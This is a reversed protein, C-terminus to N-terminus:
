YGMFDSKKEREINQRIGDIRRELYARHELYPPGDCLPLLSEFFRRRGEEGPVASGWSTRIGPELPLQGFDTFTQNHQLFLGILQAQVDPRTDAIMTFLSRMFDLDASWKQILEALVAEQRVRIGSMQPKGDPNRYYVELYSKIRYRDDAEKGAIYETVRAMLDHHDEREWLFGYDNRDDFRTPHGHREFQRDIHRIIFDRDADQLQNFVTGTRDYFAGHSMSSYHAQELLDLDDVFLAMLKPRLNGYGSFMMLVPQCVVGDKSKELLIEVARPVVREGLHQYHLLFDLKRPLDATRAAKLLTYVRDLRERTIQEPTLSAYFALQWCARGDFALGDLLAEVADAGMQEIMAPMLLVCWLSLPDGLELYRTMVQEFLAGDREALLMLTDTLSGFIEHDNTSQHANDTIELCQDFLTMYDDFGYGVFYERLRERCFSDYDDTPMDDNLCESYDRSLAKYITWTPHRFREALAADQTIERRRLFVLYDQVLLTHSYDDHNLREVIFATVLEADRALIDTNGPGHGEIYNRLLALVDSQYEQQDFLRFVRDWFQNRVGEMGDANTLRITWFNVTRGEMAGSGRFETELFCGAVALFIGTYMANKGDDTRSWVADAVTQQLEAIAAHSRRSIGFDTTLIHLLTPIEAPRKGVWDLLLELAMGRVKPEAHGFRSLVTVPMGGTDKDHARFEWQEPTVPYAELGDVWCKLYLLTDTEMFGWFKDMLQLLDDNRSDSVYGTWAMKLHPRMIAVAADADLESLVPNIVDVLREKYAPFFHVLFTDFGILQQEFVCLNFLYTALVQDSVKVVKGEHLDVVEMRHLEQVASWFADATIGFAKEIQGMQAENKRDVTRFFSVIAAARILEPQKLADQDELVDAYYQKYLDSANEIAGLGGAEFAIKAAMIALRPNGKAIKQIREVAASTIKEHESSLLTAIEENTFLTLVVHTPITTQEARGIVGDRAYDRVTAIIKYQHGEGQDALFSLLYDFHNTRNADDALILYEGPASLYVMLDNYLDAGRDSLCWVKCDPHAEQYQECVALAMRTKGTGAPGSLIVVDSKDLHGCIEDRQTERLCFETDLPAALRKASNYRAVFADQTLIQGTDVEVGLLDKALGPYHRCLDGAVRSLGFLKVDVGHEAGLKRLAQDDGVQLNGTFCLVVESVKGEPIGTKDADLCKAMDDALKKLLNDAQTTHEAFMYTGDDLLAYADPTGKRTKNKGSVSGAPVLTPYGNQRLYADALKQFAAGDLQLMEQEIQNQKSVLEGMIQVNM